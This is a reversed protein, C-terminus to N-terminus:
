KHGNSRAIIQALEDDTLDEASHIHRIPNDPDGGVAVKNKVLGLLKARHEACWMIIDMYRKDGTRHQRRVSVKQAQGETVSQSEVKAPKKSEEWAEWAEREINDIRALETALAESMDIKTEEIWEARLAKVDRCVMAQTMSLEDAIQKQSWGRVLLAAIKQRDVKIQDDNRKEAMQAAETQNL